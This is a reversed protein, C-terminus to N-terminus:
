LQQMKEQESIMQERIGLKKAYIASFALVNQVYNRTEKFPIAEIWADFPLKGATKKNWRQVRSPGANYAAIALIRNNNFRDLMERFYLSGLAINKEPDYLDDSGEYPVLNKRAVARATSPMLQMLGKAGAPSSAKAYFASEQRALSILWHKPIENLKSHERFENEFSVPFRLEINDWYAARIMSTIAGNHWQWKKCLHAALVWETKNFERTTQNWARRASLYQKHHLLERTRIMGPLEELKLLEQLDLSSDKHNMSSEVGLWQSSLFGYFSRELSLHTYNEQTISSNSKSTAIKQESLDKSRQGWYKWVQKNKLDTPMNKIWLLTDKWDGSRISQRARWELLESDTLTINEALYQDAAELKNQSYFGKVLTAVVKSTQEPSFHHTTKYADFHELAQSADKKALRRLGYSLAEHIEASNLQLEKNTFLKHDTVANKYRYIRYIKDALKQHDPDTIFRLLYKSLQYQRNLISKIYRQWAINETIYNGQVLISFLKDCEKPQSKGVSWLRIADLIADNKDDGNHKIRALQYYCQQKTSAGSKKYDILYDQWKNRQRLTELWHHRIDDAIATENHRKLFQRIHDKPLSHIRQLLELAELYHKLPYTGLKAYRDLYTKKDRIQLADYALHFNERQAELSPETIKKEYAWSTLPLLLALVLLSPQLLLPTFFMLWKKCPTTDSNREM